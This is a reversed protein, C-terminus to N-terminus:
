DTKWPAAKLRMSDLAFPLAYITHSFRVFRLVRAIV